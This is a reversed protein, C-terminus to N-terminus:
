CRLAQLCLELDTTVVRGQRQKATQWLDSGTTAQIMPMLAYICHPAPPAVVEATRHAGLGRLLRVPPQAGPSPQCALDVPSLTM